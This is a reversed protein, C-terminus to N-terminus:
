ANKKIQVNKHHTKHFILNGTYIGIVQNFQTLIILSFKTINSEKEGRYKSINTDYQICLQVLCNVLYEFSEVM